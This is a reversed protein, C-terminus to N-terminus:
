VQDIDLKPMGMTMAAPHVPMQLWSMSARVCRVRIPLLAGVDLYFSKQADRHRGVGRPRSRRFGVALRTM